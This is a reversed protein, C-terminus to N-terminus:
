EALPLTACVGACACGVRGVRRPYLAEWQRVSAPFRQLPLKYRLTYFPYPHPLLFLIVVSCPRGQFCAPLSSLSCGAVCLLRVPGRCGRAGPEGLEMGDVGGRSPLTSSYLLPPVSCFRGRSSPFRSTDTVYISPGSPRSYGAWVLGKREECYGAWDARSAFLGLPLAVHRWTLPTSLRGRVTARMQRPVACLACRMAAAADKRREQAWISSRNSKRM